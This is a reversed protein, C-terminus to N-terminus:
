THEESRAALAAAATTSRTDYLDDAIKVMTDRYSAGVEGYRRATAVRLSMRRAAPVLRPIPFEDLEDKMLMDTPQAVVASRAQAAARDGRLQAGAALLIAAQAQVAEPDDSEFAAPGKPPNEPAQKM